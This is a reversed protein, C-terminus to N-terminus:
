IVEVEMSASNYLGNTDVVEITFTEGILNDKNAISISMENGNIVSTIGVITPTISWVAEIDNDETINDNKYFVVKFVFSSGVRLSNRGLLSCILLEEDIVENTSTIYNCIMEAINDESPSYDVSEIDFCVLHSGQGYNKSVSDISVVKYVALIEENNHNYVKNTALRKDVYIKKTNDNYPLYIKTKNDLTQIQKDSTVGYNGTDLVGWQEIITSNFNQFKFLQNCLWGIGVKQIPNLNKTEIVLWYESDSYILDGIFLDDGPLTIIRSKYSTKDPALVLPQVTGNRTATSKYGISSIMEAKIRDRNAQIEVEQTSSLGTAGQIAKFYNIDLM